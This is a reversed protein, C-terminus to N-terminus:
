PFPRSGRGQLRETLAMPAHRRTWAAIADDLADQQELRGAISEFRPDRLRPEEGAGVSVLAAWEADDRVVIAVM